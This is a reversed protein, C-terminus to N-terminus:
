EQQRDVTVTPIYEPDSGSFPALGAARSLIEEDTLPCGYPVAIDFILKKGNRQLDHVHGGIDSLSKEIETKLEYLSSCFPEVPDTHITMLVGTASYVRREACDAADHVDVFSMSRDLEAHCSAITKGPGYNHLLLDHVGMIRDDERVLSIIRKELERDAPKGLLDDVTDKIIDLGSRIIFLSVVVGMAGDAPLSTFLSLTLGLLAAATAAVDSRSDAASALLVPSSIMNGLRAYFSGLLLKVGVSFLLSVATVISFRVEDPSVIKEASTKLLEFGMLMILSSLILSTLYEGRGHGFPHDKDAPKAALRCGILTVICGGSDSLNNFADSIVSISGALRGVIFKLLFLLINCVIGVCGALTGVRRRGEPSSIDKDKIFVKLLLETM